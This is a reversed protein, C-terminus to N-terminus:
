TRGNVRANAPNFGPLLGQLRKYIGAADDQRAMRELEAVATDLNAPAAEGCSAATFIKEHRTRGYREESLFLEEYLKEGPRPGTFVIEIDEDPELGSLKILDRAMDVIKVPDGMDLVFIEGGRELVVAQLVLQVAEPITMFYRTMEPDTVTVPGGAAIQQKFTLVVSGRSGLVNGFRVVAFPVDHQQAARLVLLEAVRKSAGMINTPNVAKDTSIMIFREVGHALSAEILNRTGSINNTIAEAPNLEMLPVHKHAAAHFVIQPAHRTFIADLREPFRIDAITTWLTAKGDIGLEAASQLLERQMAFVSNEGHGVLVLTAPRCRWIQRCLEGGISGGGGTILVRKNHLLNSVAESDTVVPDRRLLDEIDVNRLQNVSVSGDLLEYVGPMTKVPVGAERCLTTIQRVTRGAATPMAIVVRDLTHQRALRPIDDRTGAVPIGHILVGQKLPDDDVFAIPDLGLQPNQQMERAIMSGADGAGAILVPRMRKQSSSRALHRAALRVAFRPAALAPILLLLYLFPISLPIRGVQFLASAAFSVLTTVVASTLSASLLLLMEDASAYRWYRSYVGFRRLVIPTVVVAVSTFLLAQEGFGDLRLMTLRWAFSGYAAAAILALDLAFFYRNRLGFNRM